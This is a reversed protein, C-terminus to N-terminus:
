INEQEQKSITSSYDNLMDQPLPRNFWELIADEDETDPYDIPKKIHKSAETQKQEIMDGLEAVHKRLQNRHKAEGIPNPKRELGPWKVTEITEILRAIGKLGKEHYDDFNDDFMEADPKAISIIEIGRSIAFKNLTTDKVENACVTADKLVLVKVEVFDSSNSCQSIRAMFEETLEFRSACVIFAYVKLDNKSKITEAFAEFSPFSWIHVDSVYYKTDLRIIYLKSKTINDEDIPLLCGSELLNLHVVISSIVTNDRDNIFACIANSHSSNNSTSPESNSM